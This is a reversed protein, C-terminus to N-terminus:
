YPLIFKQRTPIWATALAYMLNSFLNVFVLVMYLNWYFDPSLQPNIIYFVEVIAKYSYYIIFTICIIFKANMLLSKREALITRNLESISYFIIVLSYCVRFISNVTFLSHLILNDYIWIALMVLVLAKEINRVPRISWKKFLWFVLLFEIFTYLNGNPSNTKWLSVSIVSFTDNVASLWIFFLFPWYTKLIKKSRALGIIGAIFVSSGLILSLTYTM